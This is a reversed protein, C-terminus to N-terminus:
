GPNEATIPRLCHAYLTYLFPFFINQASNCTNNNIYLTNNHLIKLAM